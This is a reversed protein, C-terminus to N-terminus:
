KDFVKMFNTSLKIKRTTTIKVGFKSGWVFNNNENFISWIYSRKMRLNM